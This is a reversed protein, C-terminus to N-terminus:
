KKRKQIIIAAIVAGTAGGIVFGPINNKARESFTYQIREITEPAVSKMVEEVNVNSFYSDIATKNASYSNRLENRDHAMGSLIITETVWSGRNRSTLKDVQRAIFDIFGGSSDGLSESIIEADEIHISKNGIM